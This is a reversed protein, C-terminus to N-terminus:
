RTTHAAPKGSVSHFKCPQDLMVEITYKDKSFKDGKRKRSGGAAGPSGQVTAVQQSGYKNDRREDKRKGHRDCNHHGGQGAAPQSQGGAPDPEVYQVRATSDASAYKDAIAMFDAMTKPEARHLKHKLSTGERCGDTFYGIAQEEGVGECSNRLESWRTLYDRDPEDPGQKCLALQRPRPPRKYTRTFNKIFAEQFDHWSNIQLAPLSNLWTRASGTLMLPAYRVATRKNGGAIDIATVYDSLWDEPKVAGTYKPM